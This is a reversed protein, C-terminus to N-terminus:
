PAATTSTRISTTSETEFFDQHNATHGGNTKITMVLLELTIQVETLHGTAECRMNLLMGRHVDCPNADFEFM